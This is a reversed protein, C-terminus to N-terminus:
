RFMIWEFTDVFLFRGNNIVKSPQMTGGSRSMIQRFEDPVYIQPFLENSRSSFLRVAEKGLVWLGTAVATFYGSVSYISQFAASGRNYVNYTFMGGTEEDYSPNCQDTASQVAVTSLQKHKAVEVWQGSFCSDSIIILVSEGSQGSSSNQWLQFLEEPALTGDGLYWAGSGECGHGSYFVFFARVDKRAFAKSLKTLLWGKGQADVDNYCFLESIDQGRGFFQRMTEIDCKVGALHSAAREEPSKGQNDASDLSIRAVVKGATAVNAITPTCPAGILGFVYRNRQTTM